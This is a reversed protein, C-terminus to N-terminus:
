YDIYNEQLTFYFCGYRIALGVELPVKRDKLVQAAVAQGGRIRRREGHIRHIRKPEGHIRHIRKREGHTRRIRKPEGHIRSPVGTAQQRAPAQKPAPRAKRIGRTEQHLLPHRRLNRLFEGTMQHLKVRVRRIQDRAHVPGGAAALM